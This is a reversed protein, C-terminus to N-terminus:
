NEHALGATLFQRIGDHLSIRAHWGPLSPGKWPEAPNRLPAPFADWTCDIKKNAVEEFADIVERLTHRSGSSIAFPGGVIGGDMAHVFADVADSVYVLDVITGPSVLPLTTGKSQAEAIAAMLKRRWDGPGYIDYLVLSTAEFNHADVYYALLDGFAQKTAAYLNVARYSDSDYFQFFTAPSIIRRTSALRMAELLQAGFLINDNILSSLQESSHERLYQTALHCVVEPDTYKLIDILNQTSGDHEHIILNEAPAGLRSKDSTPRVVVHVQRDNVLLRKVLQSGLYSTAGTILICDSNRPLYRSSM